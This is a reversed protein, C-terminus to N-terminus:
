NCRMIKLDNTIIMGTSYMFCLTLYLTQEYEYSIFSTLKVPDLNEVGKLYGKNEEHKWIFAINRAFIGCGHNRYFQKLTHLCENWATSKYFSEKILKIHNHEPTLEDSGSDEFGWDPLKEILSLDFENNDIHKKAYNKIISSNSLSVLQMNILDNSVSAELLDMKSSLSINNAALSYPNEDFIIKDILYEKLSMRSTSALTFFFDNYINIYSCPNINDSITCKLLIYLKNILEDELLKRYVSLSDLALKVRKLDLEKLNINSEV